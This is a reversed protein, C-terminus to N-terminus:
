VPYNLDLKCLATEIEAKHKRIAQQHSADVLSELNHFLDWSENLLKILKEQKM